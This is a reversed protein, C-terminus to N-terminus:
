KKNISNNRKLEKIQLSIKKIILEYDKKTENLMLIGGESIADGVALKIIELEKQSFCKNKLSM